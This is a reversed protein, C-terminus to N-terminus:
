GNKAGKKEIIKKYYSLNNHMSEASEDISQWVSEVAAYKRYEKLKMQLNLLENLIIPFDETVHLAFKYETLDYKNSM